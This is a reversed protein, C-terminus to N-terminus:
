SNPPPQESALVGFKRPDDPSLTQKKPLGVRQLRKRLIARQPDPIYSYKKEKM